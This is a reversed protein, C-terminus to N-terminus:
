PASLYRRKYRVKIRALIRYIARVDSFEDPFVEVIEEPTYGLPWRLTIVRMEQQDTACACVRRWMARAEERRRVQDEPDGAGQTERVQDLPHHPRGHQRKVMLVETILCRRLYALIGGLSGTQLVARENAEWMRSFTTAVFHDDIEYQRVEQALPHRGLWSRVQPSYQEILLRWAAQREVEEAGQLARRWLDLCSAPDSDLGQRFKDSEARCRAAVSTMDM